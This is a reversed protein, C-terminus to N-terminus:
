VHFRRGLESIARKGGVLITCVFIVCVIFFGIMAPVWETMYSTGYIMLSTFSLAVVLLQIPLYSQWNRGNVLMLILVAVDILVFVGPVVYNLSWGHFGLIGDILIVLLLAGITQVVMKFQYGRRGLFSAHFTFMLYLLCGGVLYDWPREFGVAMSIIRLAIFAVISALWCIRVAHKMKQRIKAVEPYTVEEKTSSQPQLAESQVPEVSLIPEGVGNTEIRVPIEEQMLHQYFARQVTMDKLASTITFCLSDQYSSIAGKLDQGKSRSIFVYSNEIYPAYAEQVQFSGMNTVTTTNAKAATNYVYRMAPRKLLLPVARLMLKKENSVNYSIVKELHEKTLQERLSERVQELVDIFTVQEKKQRFVATVMAFFNKTTNSNFFPRLNVPVSTTIPIDKKPNEHDSFGRGNEEKQQKEQYISWMLSAVLYENISAGYAKAKEKIKVLPLFYHTVSMKGREYEPGELLYAPESKYAKGEVKKYNEVYSDSADLSTEACLGETVKGQLEPHALRLYQYTLERLFQTGGTGDTLVHFVELNIRNKYYTVRFLYSRNSAAEIFQCPYTHEEQVKPAKKGNEEFYYWFMGQRLRSNFVPFLPLVEDLAQQLLEKQIEEKLVVSIRFVNSFGIGAIVPFLHATNDLKDWKIEGRRALRKNDRKEKREIRSM